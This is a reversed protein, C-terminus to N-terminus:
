DWNAEDPTQMGRQVLQTAAIRVGNADLAEVRLTAIDADSPITLLMAGQTVKAEALTRRRDVARVSVVREQPPIVLLATHPEPELPIALLRSPHLPNTATTFSGGGLEPRNPDPQDLATDVVGIWRDGIMPAVAVVVSAGASGIGTVRGGWVVSPRATLAYGGHFALISLADRVQEPEALGPAEATAREVDEDTVEVRDRVEPGYAPPAPTVYRIVGDCTVRWWEARTTDATRIIYSGTPEPQWDTLAPSAATAITCGPPALGVHADTSSSPQLNLAAILFPQADSTSIWTDAPRGRGAVAQALTAPPAGRPADIWVLMTGAFRDGSYPTVGVLVVRRQEVDEAFLVRVRRDSPPEDHFGNLARDNTGARVQDSILRTLEAVFDTQAALGGRADGDVITMSWREWGDFPGPPRDSFGAPVLTGFFVLLVAALGGLMRRVHRHRRGRALLRGLPDPMPRVHEVLGALGTRLQEEVM